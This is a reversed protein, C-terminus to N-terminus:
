VTRSFVPRDKVAAKLYRDFAMAIYRVFLRGPVSLRLASPGMSCSAKM